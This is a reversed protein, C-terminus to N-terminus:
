EPPVAVKAEPKETPELPVKLRSVPPESGKLTVTAEPPVKLKAPPEKSAGPLMMRLPPVRWSWPWEM